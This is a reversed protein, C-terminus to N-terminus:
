PSEFASHPRLHPKLFPLAWKTESNIPCCDQAAASRFGKGLKRKTWSVLALDYIGAAVFWCFFFTNMFGSSAGSGAAAFLVLLLLPAGIRLGAYLTFGVSGLAGAALAVLTAADRSADRM